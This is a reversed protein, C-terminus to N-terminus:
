KKRWFAAVITSIAALAIASIGSVIVADWIKSADKKSVSKSVKNMMEVKQKIEERDADTYQDRRDVFADLVVPLMKTNEKNEAIEAELVYRMAIYNTKDIKKGNEYNNITQRSVGIRDGFEKASWGVATKILPFVEGFNEIDKKEVM